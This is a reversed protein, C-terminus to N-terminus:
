NPVTVVDAGPFFIREIDNSIGPASYIPPMTSANFQPLYGAPCANQDAVAGTM